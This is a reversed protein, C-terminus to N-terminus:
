EMKFKQRIYEQLALQRSLSTGTLICGYKFKENPVIINVRIIKGILPLIRKESPVTIQVFMDEALPYSSIIGLGGESIDALTGEIKQGKFAGDGEWQHVELEVPIDMNYREIRRKEM